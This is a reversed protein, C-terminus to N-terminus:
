RPLVQVRATVGPGAGDVRVVYVGGSAGGLDIRVGGDAWRVPQHRVVRGLADTVSIHQTYRPVRATFVGDNPNPFLLLAPEDEFAPLGVSTDLFRMIFMNSGLAVSCEAPSTLSSGSTAGLVYVHAAHYIVHNSVDNWASGIHFSSTLVGDMDRRDLLLDHGGFSNVPGLDNGILNQFDILEHLATGDTTLGVAGDYGTGVYPPVRVWGLDGESDYKALFSRQSGPAQQGYNGGGNSFRLYADSYQGAIYVDGNHFAVSSILSFQAFTQSHVYRVWEAAGTIAYKVLFGVMYTGNPPTFTLPDFHASGGSILSGVVYINGFGDHGIAWTQDAGSAGGGASWWVQNGFADYKAVFVDGDASGTLLINGGSDTAVGQRRIADGDVERLWLLDGAASLELLVIGKGDDPALMSGSVTLSGVFSIAVVISGDPGAEVSVALMDPSASQNEAITLLWEMALDEGLRALFVAGEQDSALTGGGFSFSTTYSGAVYVSGDSAGAL